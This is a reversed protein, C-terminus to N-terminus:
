WEKICTNIKQEKKKGDQWIENSLKVGKVENLPPNGFGPYAKENDAQSQPIYVEM